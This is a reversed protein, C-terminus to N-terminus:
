SKTWTHETNLIWAMQKPGETGSAYDYLPEEPHANWYDLIPQVVGWAEEIEDARTFLTPDGRMADLLLREYADASSNTFSSKYTFDLDVNALEMNLGPIKSNVNLSIGENPQVEIYLRNTEPQAGTSSFMISPSKHFHIIISTKRVKLRKGVRIYIPTNAWRYNDIGLKLAVFTDTKSDPKVKEHDKYGLVKRGDLIGWTYQGRVVNKSVEDPKLRRISKLVKVKEDRISNADTFSQPPEICLLSLVQLIHSQVMDRLIGTKEFYDTRGEVGISESVSIEIREIYKRSWLAEFIPNAFRFVLLNQVTEKAVYHDIRYIQSETFYQLLNTNLEKASQLDSGFPKEVVIKCEEGSLGVATLNKAITPFFEPATALYFLKNFDRGFQKELEKIKNSLDNYSGANNIDMPQYFLRDTFKEINGLPLRSFEKLGELLKNRFDQDSLATRSTGLVAYDTIFKEACLSYIAPVLKRQTLDGNAGFIVILTPKVEIM